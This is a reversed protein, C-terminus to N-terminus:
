ACLEGEASVRSFARKWTLSSRIGVAAFPFLCLSRTLSNPTMVDRAGCSTEGACSVCRGIYRLLNVEPVVPATFAAAFLAALAVLRAVIMKAAFVCRM